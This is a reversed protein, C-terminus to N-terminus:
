QKWDKLETKLKRCMDFWYNKSKHYFRWIAPRFADSMMDIYREMELAHNWRLKALAYRLKSCAKQWFEANEYMTVLEGYFRHLLFKMRKYDRKRNEIDVDQIHKPKEFWLEYGARECFFDHKDILDAFEAFDGRNFTKMAENEAKLLENEKRLTVNEDLEKEYAKHYEVECKKANSCDDHEMELEGKLREIEAELAKIHASLKGSTEGFGGDLCDYVQELEEKTM